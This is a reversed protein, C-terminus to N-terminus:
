KGNIRKLENEIAKIEEPYNDLYYQKMSNSCPMVKDNKRCFKLLAASTFSTMYYIPRPSDLPLITKNNLETM